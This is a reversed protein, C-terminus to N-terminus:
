SQAARAATANTAAEASPPQLPRAIVVPLLVGSSRDVGGGGGSRRWVVGGSRFGGGSRATGSGSRVYPTHPMGDCLQNLRQVLDRM